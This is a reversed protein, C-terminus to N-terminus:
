LREESEKAALLALLVLCALCVVNEQLDLLALNVWLVRVAGQARRERLDKQDLPALNAPHVQFALAALTM